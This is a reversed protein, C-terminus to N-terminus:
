TQSPPTFIACVCLEFTVRVGVDHQMGQGVRQQAGDAIAVDALVERRGVRLPFAGGRAQEEFICRAADPRAAAADGVDVDRKPSAGRTPGCRAAM